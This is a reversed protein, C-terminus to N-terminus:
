SFGKTVAMKLGLNQRYKQISLLIDYLTLFWMLSDTMGRAGLDIALKTLPANEFMACILVKFICSDDM